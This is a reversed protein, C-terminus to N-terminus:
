FQDFVEGPDIKSVKFVNKFIFSPTVKLVDIFSDKEREGRGGSGENTFRLKWFNQTSAGVQKILDQAGPPVIAPFRMDVKTIRRYTESHSETEFPPKGVLFEYLLVGLSWIDVAEDHTKGEVM